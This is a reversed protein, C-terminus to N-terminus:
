LRSLRAGLGSPEELSWPLGGTTEWTDECGKGVQRVGWSVTVPCIHTAVYQVVLEHGEAHSVYPRERPDYMSDTLDAVVVPEFGGQLLAVVGFPRMLVCQNLHVGVLLVRSVHVSRLYRMVGSGDDGLVDWDQDIELDQHQCSWVPTGPPVGDETDSGGNPGLEFPPDPLAIAGGDGGRPAWDAGDEFTRLRARAPTGEYASVVGSPCFVIFAGGARLKKLFRNIRPALCNVRETAGTSWHQDWMDCVIVAIADSERCESRVESRYTLKRERIDVSRRWTSITWVIAGGIAGTRLQWAVGPRV